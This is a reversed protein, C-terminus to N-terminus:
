LNIFPEVNTMHFAVVDQKTYLGRAGNHVAFCYSYGTPQSKGLYNFPERFNHYDNILWDLRSKNWSGSQVAELLQSQKYDPLNDWLTRADALADASPNTNPNLSNYATLLQDFLSLSNNFSSSTSHKPTDIKDCAKNEREREKNEKNYIPSLQYNIYCKLSM